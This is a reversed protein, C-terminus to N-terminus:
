YGNEYVILKRLFMNFNFKILKKGYIIYFLYIDYNGLYYVDVVEFINVGGGGVFINWMYM